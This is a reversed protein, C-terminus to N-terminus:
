SRTGVIAVLLEPDRELVVQDVAVKRDVQEDVSLGNPLGVEPGLMVATHHPDVFAEIRDKRELKLLQLEDTREGVRVESKHHFGRM